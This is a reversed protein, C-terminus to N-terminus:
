KYYLITCAKERYRFSMCNKATIMKKNKFCILHNLNVHGLLFIPKSSAEYSLSIKDDYNLYKQNGISNQHSYKDLKFSKYYRKNPLPMPIINDDSPYECDYISEKRKIIKNREKDQELPIKTNPSNENGILPLKDKSNKENTEENKFYNTLDICNNINGLNDPQTKYNSSFKWENDVIFKFQYIQNNLPLELKFKNDNPDRIMDYKIKWDCFSGTLKVNQAEGPYIFTYKNNINNNLEEKKEKQINNDNNIEEKQKENNILEKQNIENNSLYQENSTDIELKIINSIHSIDSESNIWKKYNAKIPVEKISDANTELLTPQFNDDEELSYNEESFEM